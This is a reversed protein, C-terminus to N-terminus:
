ASTERSLHDFNTFISLELGDMWERVAVAADSARDVGGDEALMVCVVCFRGEGVADVDVGVARQRM